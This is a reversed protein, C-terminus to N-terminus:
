QFAPEKVVFEYVIPSFPKVEPVPYITSSSTTNYFRYFSSTASDYYDKGFYIGSYGEHGYYGKNFNYNAAAGYYGIRGTDGYAYPSTLVMRMSDNYRLDDSEMIFSLAKKPMDAFITVPDRRNIAIAATDEVPVSVGLQNIQYRLAGFRNIWVTDINTDLFSGDELFTAKYYLWVTSGVAVKDGDNDPNLRQMYFHSKLSDREEMNWGEPVAGTVLRTVLSRERQDPNAIVELVKLNDIIAPSSTALKTQGGYGVMNHIGRSDFIHKSISYIRWVEGTKMKPLAHFMAAPMSSSSAQSGLFMMDPTYRTYESYTGLRRATEESRTYVTNGNIDKIDYEALLWNRVEITQADDGAPELIEYYIGDTLLQAEPAHLKIWEELSAEEIANLDEDTTKACSVTMAAISVAIIARLAIRM